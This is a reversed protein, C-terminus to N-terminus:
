AQRSRRRRKGCHQSSVTPSPTYTRSDSPLWSAACQGLRSTCLTQRRRSAGNRSCPANLDLGQLCWVASAVPPASFHRVTGCLCVCKVVASILVVTFMARGSSLVFSTDLQWVRCTLTHPQLRARKCELDTAKYRLSVFISTSTARWGLACPARVIGQREQTMKSM